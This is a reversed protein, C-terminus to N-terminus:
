TTTRGRRIETLQQLLDNMSHGQCTGPRDDRYVIPRGCLGCDLPCRAHRDIEGCGTDVYWLYCGPCQQYLTSM